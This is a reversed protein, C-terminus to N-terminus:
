ELVTQEVAQRATERTQVVRRPLTMPPQRITLRFAVQAIGCRVQKPGPARRIPAGSEDHSRVPENPKRQNEEQEHPHM